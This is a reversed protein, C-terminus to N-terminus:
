RHAVGSGGNSRTMSFSLSYAISRQQRALEAQRAQQQRRLEDAQRQAQQRRIEDARRQTERREAERRADAAQQEASPGTSLHSYDSADHVYEWGSHIGRTRWVWHGAQAVGGYALAGVAVISVLLKTTCRM